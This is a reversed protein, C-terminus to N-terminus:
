PHAKIAALITEVTDTPHIMFGSEDHPRAVFNDVGRRMYRVYGFLALLNEIAPDLELRCHAHYVDRQYMGVPLDFPPAPKAPDFVTVTM